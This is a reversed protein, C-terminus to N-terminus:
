KVLVKKGVHIYIGAPLNNSDMKRGMLDYYNNDQVKEVNIESIASPEAEVIGINDITLVFQDADSIAHIGIYYQGNSKSAPVTFRGTHNTVDYGEVVVAPIVTTTMSEVTPETGVMVEFREPYGSAKADISFDYEVEPDMIIAPTILWDDAANASNWQYSVNKGTSSYTWTRNDNNANIVTFESFAAQTEFTEMYPVEHAGNNPDKSITINSFAQVYYVVGKTTNQILYETVNTYVDAAEDYALVFDCIDKQGSANTEAGAMYNPRNAVHGIYQDQAFTVNNGNRTGKIWSQLVDSFIGQIYVDNDKVGVNVNYKFATGDYGTAEFIYTEPEVGEPLEVLVDEAQTTPTYVSNYDAYGAWEQTGAYIAGFVVYTSTGILSIKDETVSFQVNHASNRVEFEEYDDDYDLVALTIVQNIESDYAINQGMPVTITSGDDSLTGEIWSNVELKSLPQKFYVKNNEGFVIDITGTQAGRRINEGSYYYAYGARDYTKLEGAPQEMVIGYDSASQAWAGLTMVAMATILLLKKM